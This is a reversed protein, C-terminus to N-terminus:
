NFNESAMYYTLLHLTSSLGDYEISMMMYKRYDQSHIIEPPEGVNVWKLQVLLIHLM